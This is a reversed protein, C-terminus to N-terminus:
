KGFPVLVLIKLVLEPIKDGRLNLAQIPDNVLDVSKRIGGEEGESRDIQLTAQFICRMPTGSAADREERKM